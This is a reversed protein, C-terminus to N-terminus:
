QVPAVITVPQNIDTFAMAINMAMRLNADGLGMALGPLMFNMRIDQYRALLDDVGLWTDGVLTANQLIQDVEDANVGATGLLSGLDIAAPNLTFRLHHLMQGDRVEEGIYAVDVADKLMDEMGFPDM